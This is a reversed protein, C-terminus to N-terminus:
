LNNIEKLLKLSDECWKLEAKVVEQGNKVTLLWLTLKKKDISKNNKLSDEIKLFENYKKELNEKFTIINDIIFNVPIDKSMFIKLLLESRIPQSEIPLKLWKELEEAGKETIFYM